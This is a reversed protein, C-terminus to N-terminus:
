FNLSIGGMLSIKQAGMGPMIDWQKCLLNGAQAWVAFAHSFNYRAGVHLDIVDNMEIAGYKYYGPHITIGDEDIVPKVYWRAFTSRNIRCNLGATVMLPKIPWVKVDFNFITTSGDDGLPYGLYRTDEEYDEDGAFTHIFKANAEVLSRYKYNMDFGIYAGKCKSMLYIVAAYQNVDKYPSGPGDPTDNDLDLVDKYVGSNAGPVIPDLQANIFGYGAFAKASFGVFPGVDFGVRGDFPIYTNGYKGLPDNYRFADHMAGLHNIEKGGTAQAFLSLGKIIKFHLDVDPSFRVAAGDNFSFQVNFGAKAKFIDNEYLYYPSLTLMGYTNDTPQNNIIDHRRLNVIDASFNFGVDGIRDFNYEAGLGANLWFEKAGDIGQLHSKDYGAYDITATAEYEIGEGKINYESQWKGDVRAEFFATKHDKLFDGFGGYFNYSDFHLHGDLGLVGKNLKKNWSASLLNDNFRQKSRNSPQEILKTTNKGIWTSNHQLWLDLQEEEKDILRYGANAIIKLHTGAGLDLYGRQNSFNHRTRYGYPLMTPIEVPVLTPVTWDSFQPAVAEKSSKKIEKPLVTKKVVEKKVPDFDRELTIEKNLDTKTTQATTNCCTIAAVAIALYTAKKNM